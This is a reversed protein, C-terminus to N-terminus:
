SEVISVLQAGNGATAMNVFANAHGRYGSLEAAAWGGVYTIIAYKHAHNMTANITFTDTQPGSFAAGSTSGFNFSTCNPSCFTYNLVETAIGSVIPANSAMTLSGNTLDVLWADGILSSIATAVCEYTGSSNAPLPDICPSSTLIGINGSATINWTVNFSTLRAAGLPSRVPISLESAGEAQGISDTIAKRLKGACAGVTVKGKWTANGTLPNFMPDTSKQSACGSTSRLWDFKTQQVHAYPPTYTLGMTAPAACVVVTVAALAALALWARGLRRRNHIAGYESM